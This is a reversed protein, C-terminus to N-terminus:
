PRLQWRVQQGYDPGTASDTGRYLGIRSEAWLQGPYLTGPRLERSSVPHWRKVPHSEDVSCDIWGKKPDSSLHGRLQIRYERGDRYPALPVFWQYSHNTGSVSDPHGAGGVLLLSGGRVVLAAVPERWKDNVPGHLQWLVHWESKQAAAPGLDGIVIGNLSYTDGDRYVDVGAPTMPVIESRRTPSAPQDPRPLAFVWWADQCIPANGGGQVLGRHGIAHVACFGPAVAPVWSPDALIVSTPSPTPAPVHKRDWGMWILVIIAAVALMALVGAVVHGRSQRRVFLPQRDRTM